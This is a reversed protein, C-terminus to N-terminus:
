ATMKTPNPVNSLSSDFHLRLLDRVRRMALRRNPM